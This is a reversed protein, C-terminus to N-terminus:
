VADVEQPTSWAGILAKVLAALPIAFFVGWFGWVGGFFLVAIIIYVPNLDVAESFLLPVLLNGDLAQVVGYAIMAYWFEPSVGWQALGVLVVPITVVAAGIFPVLVSLGVLLGFLAAYRMDFIALVIYTAFGVVVLEILKGRIYNMIQIDMENSVQTILRRTSPLLSKFSEVLVTKDKLMFFIMLPVLILYILLAVLDRLTSFSVSIAKQGIEVIGGDVTSMILQIQEKSILQPYKEPLLNLYNKGQELMAPAESILNSGQQWFIPVLGVMVAISVSVFILLVVATAATRSVGMKTMKAVPWELLYAIVIAVLVPVMVHGVFYLTLSGIVLLLFLTVSEPDSFKRKYWASLFEYM